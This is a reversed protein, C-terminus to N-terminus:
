LSLNYSSMGTIHAPIIALLYFWWRSKPSLVLTAALLANSPWILSLGSASFHLKMGILVLLYYLLAIFAGKGILLAFRLYANKDLQWWPLQIGAPGRLPSHGAPDSM